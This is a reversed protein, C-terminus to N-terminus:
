GRQVGIKGKDPSAATKLPDDPNILGGWLGGKGPRIVSGQFELGPERDKSLLLPGDLDVYDAAGALLFAPAMALSTGVMCGVFVKMNKARVAELVRIAETLGGTKDLKINVAQYLSTVHPLSDLDHFSEDACLPVPCDVRALGRDDAAPLPQEILRVGLRDLRPGYAKLQEVSWGENADAILDAKPSAERVAAVREDDGDGGLKLKLLPRAANERAKAAMAEPTDLSITFATTVAGPAPLNALDWVPRGAMKSELDWLACDLANRAAGPGMRRVLEARTLGAALSPRMEELDAQVGELSEGYRMYPVCEGRGTHGDKTLNAVIVEAHTKAGRSIRFGGSIPWQEVQISLDPM